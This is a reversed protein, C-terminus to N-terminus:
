EPFMIKTMRPVVVDARFQKGKLYGAAGLRERLERDSSLQRIAEALSDVDQTPVLLGNQGHAILEPIAGHRTSIIPIGAQMAEIIVGPHGEGVWHTPMIFADYKAMLSTASGIEALGLYAAGPTMELQRLFEEKDEDFIPGYFDCRIDSAGSRAVSRLAELLILPGKERRIQSLFIYRLGWNKSRNIELEPSTRYAPIYHSNSCGLRELTQQLQRTQVMLGDVARLVALMYRRILQGRQELYLDLDGGFPKLYFRKGHWRALLLLVPVVTFMFFNNAFVLVADCGKVKRRFQHTISLARRLTEARLLATKKRYERPSTNIRDTRLSGSKDVEELFAVVSATAGSVIPPPQPGVVLLTQSRDRAGKDTM